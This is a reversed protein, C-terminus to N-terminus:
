VRSKCVRPHPVEVGCWVVGCWVVGEGEGVGNFLARRLCHADELQSPNLATVFWSNRRASLVTLADSLTVKLFSGVVWLCTPLPPLLSPSPLPLPLYFCPLGESLSRPSRKM